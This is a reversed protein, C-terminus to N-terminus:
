LTRHYELLAAEFSAKDWPEGTDPNLPFSDVYYVYAESISHDVGVQSESGSLFSAQVNTAGAEDQRMRTITNIGILQEVDVPLEPMTFRSRVESVPAGIYSSDEDPPVETIAGVGSGAGIIDWEQPTADSEPFVTLVRAPGIFDVGDHTVIDDLHIEDGGSGTGSGDNSAWRVQAIPTTGLNLDGIQVIPVRNRRVEISGVTDSITVICEFHEWAGAVFQETSTMLLTGTRGGERVLVTGDTMFNFSLIPNNNVDRLQFNVRDAFVPLSPFRIGFAVGLTNQLGFGARRALQTAGAVGILSMYLNGTRAGGASRTQVHASTSGGAATAQAWLGSRMLDRVPAGGEGYQEFGESWHIFAM